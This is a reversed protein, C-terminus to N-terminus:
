ILGQEERLKRLAAVTIGLREAVATWTGLEEYLAAVDPETSEEQEEVEQEEVEQEVKSIYRMRRAKEAVEESVGEAVGNNFVVVTGFISKIQQRKPAVFRPHLTLTYTM